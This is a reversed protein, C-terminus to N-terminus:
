FGPGFGLRRREEYGRQIGGEWCDVWPGCRGVLLLWIDGVVCVGDDQRESSSPPLNANPRPAAPRPPAAATAAGEGAAPLWVLLMPRLPPM